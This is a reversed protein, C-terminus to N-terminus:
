EDNFGQISKVYKNREGIMYEFRKITRKCPSGGRDLISDIANRYAEMIFYYDREEKSAWRFKKAM